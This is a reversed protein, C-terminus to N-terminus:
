VTLALVLGIQGIHYTVMVLLSRAPLPAVFRDWGICADSFFFLLSGAIAWPNGTGIAAIVMLSIVCMYVGVPAAMAREKLAAGRVIRSGVVGAAILVIVLGVLLPVLTVGLIVLAVIYAVHALLFGVLGQLFYSEGLMLCVDGILSLVLGVVLVTRATSDSPDSIALAAAVLVVMTLPKFVYEWPKNGTYAAWWDVAAVVLTLVILLAFM